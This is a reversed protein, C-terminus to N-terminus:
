PHLLSWFPFPYHGTTEIDKHRLPRILFLTFPLVEDAASVASVLPGHRILPSINRTTQRCKLPLTEFNRAWRCDSSLRCAGLSVPGLCWVPSATSPRAAAPAPAQFPSRTLWGKAKGTTQADALRPAPLCCVPAGCFGPRGASAGMVAPCSEVPLDANQLKVKIADNDVTKSAMDKSSHASHRRRGMEKVMLSSVSILATTLDTVSSPPHIRSIRSMPPTLHHCPARHGLQAAEAGTAV